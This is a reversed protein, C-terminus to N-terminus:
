RRINDEWKYQQRGRAYRGETKGVAHNKYTHKHRKIHCFSKVKRCKIGKLLEKKFDWDRLSKQMLELVM